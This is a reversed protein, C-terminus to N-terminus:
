TTTLCRGPEAGWRYGKVTEYDRTWIVCEQIAGKHELFLVTTGDDRHEFRNVKFKPGGSANHGTIFRRPQGKIYGHRSDSQKTIRTPQRCGCQCLGIPIVPPSNGSMSLFTSM